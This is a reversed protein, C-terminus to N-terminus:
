IIAVAQESPQSIKFILIAHMMGFQTISDYLVKMRPELWQLENRIFALSKMTITRYNMSCLIKYHTQSRTFIEECMPFVSTVGKVVKEYFNLPPIESPDPHTCNMNFNIPLLQSDGIQKMLRVLEYMDSYIDFIGCNFEGYFKALKRASRNNKKLFLRIKEGFTKKKIIGIHKVLSSSKHTRYFKDCLAKMIEIDNIANKISHMGDHFYTSMDDFNNKKEEM